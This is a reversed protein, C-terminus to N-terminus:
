WWIKWKKYGLSCGGFLHSVRLCIEWLAQLLKITQFYGAHVPIEVCLCGVCLCLSETTQPTVRPRETWMMGTMVPAANMASITHNIKLRWKRQIHLNHKTDLLFVIRPHIVKTMTRLKSLRCSLLCFSQHEVSPNKHMLRALSVWIWPCLFIM